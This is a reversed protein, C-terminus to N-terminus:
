SDGEVSEVVGTLYLSDLDPSLPLPLDVKRVQEKELLVLICHMLDPDDEIMRVAELLPAYHYVDRRLFHNTVRRVERAGLRRTGHLIM